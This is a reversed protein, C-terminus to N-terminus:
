EDVFFDLPTLHSIPTSTSRILHSIWTRFQLTPLQLIPRSLRLLILIRVICTKSGRQISWKSHRFRTTVRNPRPQLCSHRLSVGWSLRMRSFLLASTIKVRWWAEMNVRLSISDRHRLRLRRWRWRRERAWTRRPSGCTPPSCPAAVNLSHSNPFLLTISPNKTKTKHHHQHSFRTPPKPVPILEETHSRLCILTKMQDKCKSQPGVARPTGSLADTIAEAFLTLSM